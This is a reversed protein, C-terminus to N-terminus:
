ESVCNAARAVARLLPGVTAGTAADHVGEGMGDVVGDGVGEGTPVDVLITAGVWAAMGVKICACCAAGGGAEAACAAEDRGDAIPSTNMTTTIPSAPRITTIKSKM